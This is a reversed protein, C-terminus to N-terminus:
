YRVLAVDRANLEKKRQLLDYYVKGSCFVVRRVEPIDVEEDDLVEM